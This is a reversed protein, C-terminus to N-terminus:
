NPPKDGDGRGAQEAANWTGSLDVVWWTKGEFEEKKQTLRIKHGPFAPNSFTSHGALDVGERKMVQKLAKSMRPDVEEEKWGEGLFEKLNKKLREFDLDAAYEYRYGVWFHPNAQHILKGDPLAKALDPLREQPEASVTSSSVSLLACVLLVLTKMSNEQLVDLGDM